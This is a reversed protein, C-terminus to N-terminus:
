EGVRSVAPPSGASGADWLAVRGSNDGSILAESSWALAVIPASNWALTALSAGDALDTIEIRPQKGATAVRRGDASVAMARLPTDAHHELLLAGHRDWVRLVGDEGAAVLRDGAFALAHVAARPERLVRPPSTAVLDYLAIPGNESGIAAIRGDPSLAVASGEREVAFRRLVRGDEADLLFAANSYFASMLLARGDPSWAVARVIGGPGDFARVVQGTDMAYRILRNELAVVAQRGDPRVVVANPAEPHPPEAVPIVVPPPPAFGLSFQGTPLQWSTIGLDVVAVLLTAGDPATVLAVIPKAFVLTCRPRRAGEVDGPPPSCGDLPIGAAGPGDDRLPLLFNVEIPEGARKLAFAANVSPQSIAPARAELVGDGTALAYSRKGASLDLTVAGTVDALPLPRRWIDTLYLQVRGDPSAKAELHIMGEMAVVGGHHPTHDHIGPNGASLAAARSVQWEDGVRRLEFRVRAGPILAARVDDAPAAFRTTAADMVGAIQDHRITVQKAAADVSLVDGVGVYRPGSDCAAAWLACIAIVLGSRRM